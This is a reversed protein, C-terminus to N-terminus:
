RKDEAGDGSTGNRRRASRLHPARYENVKTKALMMMVCCWRYFYLVEDYDLFELAMEAVVARTVPEYLSKFHKARICNYADNVEEPTYYAELEAAIDNWDGEGHIIWESLIHATEIREPKMM